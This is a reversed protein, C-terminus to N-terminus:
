SMPFRAPCMPSLSNAKGLAPEVRSAHPDLWPGVPEHLCSKETFCFFTRQRQVSVAKGLSSKLGQKGRPWFGVYEACSYATGTVLVVLTGILLKKRVLCAIRSHQDLTLAPKMFAQIVVPFLNIILFFWTNSGGFSVKLFQYKELIVKAISFTDRHLYIDSTTILLIGLCNLM